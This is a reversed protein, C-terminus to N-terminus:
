LSCTRGRPSKLGAEVRSNAQRLVQVDAAFTSMAYRYHDILMIYKFIM